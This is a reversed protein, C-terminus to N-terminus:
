TKEFLLAKTLFARDHACVRLGAEGFLATLDTQGYSAFYPEHFYAPFAGLLRALRPEDVPQLADAFAFLGGPRLVRGIESAVRSRVAPPLEHFLFVSTVGDLSDNAFPLREANAQVLASIGSFARAETLYAASLDVGTLRARPFAAALDTLFAGSGCALDVITLRRQDRGRWANALLALARRRMPGAAGSFLTEVQAEYRRASDRTFWGGSQFHFNQQYYHPYPSPGPAHTRAEAAGRRRRRAEVRRADTLFDAGRRLAELPRVSAFGTAPYVGDAVDRADKEFAELWLRRVFGKPPPETQVRAGADAVGAPSAMARTVAGATAWWAAKMAGGAVQSLGDGV